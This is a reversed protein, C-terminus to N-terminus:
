GVQAIGVVVIEMDPSGIDPDQVIVRFGPPTVVVPVPVVVVIAPRAAPVYENVTVLPAPHVDAGECFLVILGAGTVGDAGRIPIIV